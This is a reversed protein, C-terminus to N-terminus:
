HHCLFLSQLGYHLGEVSNTTRAIGDMGASYQNWLAVPYKAWGYNNGRGRQRRVQTQTCLTSRTQVLLVCHLTYLAAGQSNDMLLLVFDGNLQGYNFHRGTRSDGTLTDGNLHRGNLQGGNLHGYVRFIEPM